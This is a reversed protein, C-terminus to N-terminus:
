LKKAWKLANFGTFGFDQSILFPRKVLMGHQNLLALAQDVPMTKLKESMHLEKYLMGSTNFLKKLNEQSFSLMQRLEALTPPTETIEKLSFSVKREKLFALAAQCTSCKKYIYINM